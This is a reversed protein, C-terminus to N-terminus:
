RNIVIKYFVPHIITSILWRVIHNTPKVISSFWHFRFAWMASSAGVGMGLTALFTVPCSKD